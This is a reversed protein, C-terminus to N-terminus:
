RHSRSQLFKGLNWSFKSTEKQGLHMLLLEHWLSCFIFIWLVKKLSKKIKSHLKMSGEFKYNYADRLNYFSKWKIPSRHQGESLLISNSRRAVAPSQVEEPNTTQSKERSWVVMSFFIIVCNWFFIVKDKVKKVKERDDLRKNCQICSEKARARVRGLARAVIPYRTYLKNCLKYLKAHM